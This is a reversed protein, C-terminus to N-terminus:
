RTFGLLLRGLEYLFWLGTPIFCLQAWLPPRPSACLGLLWGTLLGTVILHNSM